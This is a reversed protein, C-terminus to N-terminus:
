GASSCVYRRSQNTDNGQEQSVAASKHRNTPCKWQLYKIKTIIFSGNNNNTLTLSCQIHETFIIQFKITAAIKEAWIKVILYLKWLTWFSEFAQLVLKINNTVLLEQLAKGVFAGSFSWFKMIWIKTRLINCKQFVFFKLLDLAM